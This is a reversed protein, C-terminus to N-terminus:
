LNAAAIVVGANTGQRQERSAYEQARATEAVKLEQWSDEIAGGSM